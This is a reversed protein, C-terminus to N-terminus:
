ILFLWKPHFCHQKWCVSNMMEEDRLGSWCSICGFFDHVVSGIDGGVRHIEFHVHTTSTKTGMTPHSSCCLPLVPLSSSSLLPFLVPPAYLLSSCLFGPSFSSRPLSPLVSLGSSFIVLFSCVSLRLLLPVSCFALSCSACCLFVLLCICLFFLRGLFTFSSFLCLLSNGKPLCGWAKMAMMRSKCRGRLNKM